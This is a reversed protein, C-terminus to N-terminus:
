HLMGDRIQKRHNHLGMHADIYDTRMGSGMERVSLAIGNVLAWMQEISKGCTQAAGSVFNLSFPAQCKQVHGMLHMKPILHQWEEPPVKLVAKLDPPLDEFREWFGHNFQCNIDYTHLVRVGVGCLASVLSWMM